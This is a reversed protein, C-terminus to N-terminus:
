VPWVHGGLRHMRRRNGLGGIRAPISQGINGTRLAFRVAHGTGDPCEGHIGDFLSSGPMGSHWHSHGIDRDREPTTVELVIRRLRAPEIAIAEHEGVPMARHQEIGQQMQSAVVERDVFQPRKPLKVRLRGAMGLNAHGGADFGGGAREPLPQGIGDAHCQGFHDKSGLEVTVAEIDDIVEGPGVGIARMRAM